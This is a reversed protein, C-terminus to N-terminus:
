KGKAELDALTVIKELYDFSVPKTVYDNAGLEITKEATEEDKLVTTMIVPMSKDVKRIEKLVEIGSMGPMRIDLFVLNPKLLMVQAIADKGNTAKIVEHGRPTFFDYIFNCMEIEDDVILIKM